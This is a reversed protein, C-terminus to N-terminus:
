KTIYVAQDAGTQMGGSGGVGATEKKPLERPGDGVKVDAVQQHVRGRGWSTKPHGADECPKTQVTKHIINSGWHAGFLYSKERRVGGQEGSKVSPWGKAPEPTGWDRQTIISTILLRELGRRV